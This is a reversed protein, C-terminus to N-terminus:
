YLLINQFLLYNKNRLHFAEKNHNRSFKLIENKNIITLQIFLQLYNYLHNYIKTFLFTIYIIFRYYIARVNYNIIYFDRTSFPNFISM